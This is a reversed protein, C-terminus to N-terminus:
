QSDRAIEELIFELEIVRRKFLADFEGDVVNVERLSMDSSRKSNTHKLHQERLDELKNLATNIKSKLQVSSIM